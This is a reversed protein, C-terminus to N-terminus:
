HEGLCLFVQSQCTGHLIWSTSNIVAIVEKTGWRPQHQGKSLPEATVAGDNVGFVGGM